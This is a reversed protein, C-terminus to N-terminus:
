TRTQVFSLRGFGGTNRLSAAFRGSRRQVWDIRQSDVASHLERSKVVRWKGLEGGRSCPAIQAENRKRAGLM